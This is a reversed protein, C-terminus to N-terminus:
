VAKMFVVDAHTHEIVALTTRMVHVWTYQVSCMMRNLSRGAQLM